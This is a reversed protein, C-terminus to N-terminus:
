NSIFNKLEAVQEELAAIRSQVDVQPEEEVLNAMAPTASVDIFSINRALADTYVKHWETNSEDSLKAFVDHHVTVTIATVNAANAILYQLSELSLYPSNKLIRSLSNTLRILRIEKLKSFEKDNSSFVSENTINNIVIDGLIEELNGSGYFLNLVVNELQVGRGEKSIRVIKLKNGSFAMASTSSLRIANGCAFPNILLNTRCNSGSMVPMGTFVSGKYKFIELAEEYTIDTLGNLEFYGTERNYKGYECYPNTEKCACDWLKIFLEKWADSTTTILTNALNSDDNLKESIQNIVELKEPTTNVFNAISEDIDKKTVVKSGDDTLICKVHTIPYLEEGERNKIIHKKAM